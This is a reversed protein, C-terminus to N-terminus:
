LPKEEVRGDIHKAFRGSVQDHVPESNPWPWGGFQDRQYDAFAQQIETQSNMVFPGYQAVPEAIPKGQLLLFEAPQEGSTLTVVEDPKLRVGQQLPFDQGDVVASEGKYFYVARNIGLSAAPIEFVANAPMKINWVAVDNNIDAAWSEPPPAPPQNGQFTGAVAKVETIHGNADPVSIIPTEERWLMTFHPDVMKSRAPLNIWIQFLVLPNDDDDCTLPFMESHQVGKGATMWQTDGGGYRGAAGLSDAHDVLGENVVTITEFGRHPHAPFGPVADGHYMNWGNVNQFDQGMQRGRLLAKDPGSAGNGKPYDDKHYVCFLFPDFTKWPMGLPFRELIASM